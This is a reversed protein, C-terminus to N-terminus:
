FLLLLLLRRLSSAFRRLPCRRLRRQGLRWDVCQRGLGDGRRLGGVRGCGRARLPTVSTCQRARRGGRQQARRRHKSTPHVDRGGDRADAAGEGDGGVTDDELHPEEEDERAVRRADCRLHQARAAQGAAVECPPARQEEAHQAERKRQAAGRPEGDEEEGRGGRM